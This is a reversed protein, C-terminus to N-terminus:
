DLRERAEMDEPIVHSSKRLSYRRSVNTQGEKSQQLKGPEVLPKRLPAASSIDLKQAPNKQSIDEINSM